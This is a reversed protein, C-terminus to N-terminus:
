FIAPEEEFGIDFGVTFGAEHCVRGGWEQM